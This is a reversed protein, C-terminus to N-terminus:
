SVRGTEVAPPISDWSDDEHDGAEAKKDNTEDECAAEEMVLSPEQVDVPVTQTEERHPPPSSAEANMAKVETGACKMCLWDDSIYITIM